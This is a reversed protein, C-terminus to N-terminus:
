VKKLTQEQPTNLTKLKQSCSSSVPDIQPMLNQYLCYIKKLAGGAATWEKFYHETKNSSIPLLRGSIKWCYQSKRPDAQAMWEKMYHSKKLLATAAM